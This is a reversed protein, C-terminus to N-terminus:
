IEFCMNDYVMLTTTSPCSPSEGDCNSRLKNNREKSKAIEVPENLHPTGRIYITTSKEFRKGLCISNTTNNTSSKKLTPSGRPDLNLSLDTCVQDGDTSSEDNSTGSSRRLVVTAEESYGSEDSVNDNIEEEGPSDDGGAKNRETSGRRRPLHKGFEDECCSDVVSESADSGPSSAVPDSSNSQPFFEEDDEGDMLLRHTDSSTPMELLQMVKDYGTMYPLNLKADMPVTHPRRQSGDPHSDIQHHTPPNAYSKRHEVPSSSKANKTSNRTVVVGEDDLLLDVNEQDEPKSDVVPSGSVVALPIQPLHNIFVTSTVGHDNADGVVPV